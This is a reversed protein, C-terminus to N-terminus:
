SVGKSKLVSAMELDLERIHGLLWENIERTVAELKGEDFDLHGFIARLSALRRMHESHHEEV